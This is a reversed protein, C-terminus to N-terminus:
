CLEFVVDVIEFCRIQFVSSGSVNNTAKVIIDFSSRRDTTTCSTCCSPPSCADIIRIPNETATGYAKKYAANFIPKKGLSKPASLHGPNELALMPAFLVKVRVLEMKLSEVSHVRSCDDLM